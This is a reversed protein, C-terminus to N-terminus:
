MIYLIKTFIRRLEFNLLLMFTIQKFQFIVIWMTEKSKTIWISMEIM